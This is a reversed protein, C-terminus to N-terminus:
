TFQTYRFIVRDDGRKCSVRGDYQTRIVNSRRESCKFRHGPRRCRGDAGGNDRRCDDWKGILGKGDKCSVGSVRLGTTYTPGYARPSQDVSCGKAAHAGPSEAAVAAPLLLALAALLPICVRAKPHM